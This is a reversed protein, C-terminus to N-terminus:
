PRAWEPWAPGHVEKENPLMVIVYVTFQIYYLGYIMM